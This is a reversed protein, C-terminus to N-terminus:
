PKVTEAATRASINAVVCSQASSLMPLTATLWSPAPLGVTFKVALQCPLPAVVTAERHVGGRLGSFCLDVADVVAAASCRRGPYVNYGRSLLETFRWSAVRWRGAFTPRLVSALARRKFREERHFVHISLVM